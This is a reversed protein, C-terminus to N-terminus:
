YFTVMPTSINPEIASLPIITRPASSVSSQINMDIDSSYYSGSPMFVNDEDDDLVQLNNYMSPKMNVNKNLKQMPASTSLTERFVPVPSWYDEVLKLANGQEFPQYICDRVIGAYRMKINKFAMYKNGEQDYEMNIIAVWDANDIMLMSEGVNARGLLRTLDSKNGRVGDDITRSADRNLHAVSIVPIEKLQALVKMENVVAGLELRIDPIKYISRIRKIHDQLLAIVEYGDDELDEIITYLDATDISRDARYIVTININNIDSLMLEGDSKLIRILEEKSYNKMGSGTLITCIRDATEEVTNEQTLMLITPVKTPDKTKFGKNAKKMQLALNLLVNSKGVGATGVLLYFRTAEIWGGLMQNLGQMTCILGRSPSTIKDYIDSVVNEFKGDELTFVVDNLAEAKVKRFKNNAERIFEEYEKIIESRYRYDQALYRTGIDMMRHIDNEIFTCKLAGSVTENIFSLEANSLEEFQEIDLDGDIIGGNIYALILTPSTLKDILRAELGKRIFRIRKMKEIDNEYISLDLTEFLNRMNVLHSSKINANQSIIYSCMLELVNIDFNMKVKTDTFSVTKGFNGKNRKVIEM